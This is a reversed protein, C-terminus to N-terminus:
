ARDLKIYIIIIFGADRGILDTFSKTYFSNFISLLSRSSIFPIIASSLIIVPELIDM